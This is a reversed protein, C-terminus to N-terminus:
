FAAVTFKRISGYTDGWVRVWFGYWILAMISYFPESVETSTPTLIVCPNM